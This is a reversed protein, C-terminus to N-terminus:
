VVDIGGGSRLDLVTEGELFEALVTPNGCGLSAWVEQEPVVGKQAGEYLNATIPNAGFCSSREGCCSSAKGAAVRLAAEGYKEKGV